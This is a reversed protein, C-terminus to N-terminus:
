HAPGAVCLFVSFYLLHLKSFPFPSPTLTSGFSIVEFLRAGKLDNLGRQERCYNRFYWFKTKRVFIEGSSYNEKKYMTNTWSPFFSQMKQAYFIQM